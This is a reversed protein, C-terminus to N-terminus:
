ARVVVQFYHVSRGVTGVPMAQTHLLLPVNAFRPAELTIDVAQTRHGIDIGVIDVYRQEVRPVVEGTRVAQPERPRAVRGTEDIRDEPDLSVVAGIGVDGIAHHEGGHRALDPVAPGDCDGIYSRAAFVCAM